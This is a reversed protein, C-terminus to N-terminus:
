GQRSALGTMHSISRCASNVITTVVAMINGAHRVHSGINTRCRWSDSSIHIIDRVFSYLYAVVAASTLITMVTMIYNLLVTNVYGLSWRLLAACTVASCVFPEAIERFDLFVM